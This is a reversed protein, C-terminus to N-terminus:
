TSRIRSSSRSLAPRAHTCPVIFHVQHAELRELELARPCELDVLADAAVLGPLPDQGLVRRALLDDVGDLGRAQAAAASRGERHADLPTEHRARRRHLLVQDAIGVLALRAGAM